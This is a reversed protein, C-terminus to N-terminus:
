DMVVISPRISLELGAPIVKVDFVGHLVQPEHKNGKGRVHVSRTSQSYDRVDLGVGEGRRVGAYALLSLIARNRVHSEDSVVPKLEDM